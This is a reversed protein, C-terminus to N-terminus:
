PRLGGTGHLPPRSQQHPFFVFSAQFLLSSSGACGATELDAPHRTHLGEGPPPAPCEHWYPVHAVLPMRTPLARPSTLAHPDTPCTPPPRTTRSHHGCGDLWAPVLSSPEQSPLGPRTRCAFHGASGDKGCCGWLPTRTRTRFWRRSKHLSILAHSRCACHREPRARVRPPSRDRPTSTGPARLTDYAYWPAGLRLAFQCLLYGVVSKPNPLVPKDRTHIAGTRSRTRHWPSEHISVGPLYPGATLLPRPVLSTFAQM